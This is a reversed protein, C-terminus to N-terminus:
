SFDLNFSKKFEKLAPYKTVLYNYKQEDTYLIEDKESLNINTEIYLDDVNFRKSLFTILKQRYNQVFLDRQ